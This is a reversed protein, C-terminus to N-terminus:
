PRSYCDSGDEEEEKHTTSDEVIPVEEEAGGVTHAEDLMPSTPLLCPTTPDMATLTRPCSSGSISNATPKM